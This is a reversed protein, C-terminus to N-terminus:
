IISILFKVSRFFIKVETCKVSELVSVSVKTEMQTKACSMQFFGNLVGATPRTGAAIKFNSCPTRKRWKEKM